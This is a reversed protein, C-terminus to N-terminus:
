IKPKNSDMNQFQQTWETGSTHTGKPTINGWRWCQNGTSGIEKM